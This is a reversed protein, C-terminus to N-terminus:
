PRTLSADSAVASTSASWARVSGPGSSQCRRSPDVSTSLTWRDAWASSTSDVADDNLKGQDRTGDSGADLSVRGRSLVIDNISIVRKLIGNVDIVPLRRVRFRKMATLAESVGDDPLCAHVPHTM